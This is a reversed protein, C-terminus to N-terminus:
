YYFLSLIPKHSIFPILVLMFLEESHIHTNCILVFIQFIRFYLIWLLILTRLDLLISCSASSNQHHFVLQM